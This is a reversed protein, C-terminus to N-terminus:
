VGPHEPPTVPATEPRHAGGGGAGGGGGGGGGGLGMQRLAEDAQDAELARMAEREEEDLAGVWEGGPQRVYDLQRRLLQHEHEAKAQLEDPHYTRPPAPAPAPRQSSRYRSRTM